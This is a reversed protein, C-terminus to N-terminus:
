VDLSFGHCVVFFERPHGRFRRLRALVRSIRRWGILGRVAALDLDQFPQFGDAHTGAHIDAVRVLLAGIFDGLVAGADVSPLQDKDGLIFVIAKDPIANLLSGFLCIDIMSAEDIMFISKEPFQNDKNYAFGNTTPSYKLLSHITKPEAEKLKDKILEDTFMSDSEIREIISEKLRDKAKGTPATLYVNWSDLNEEDVDRLKKLINKLIDYVVTTKGTGPGGSIILNNKLGRIVADTQKPDEDIKPSLYPTNETWSQRNGPFLVSFKKQIDLKADYYKKAYLWDNDIVFLGTLKKGENLKIIDNISAKLDEVTLPNQNNSEEKNEKETILGEWKKEWKEWLKDSNLSICTNGDDLFSFYLCILQLSSDSYDYDCDLMELVKIWIRSIGNNNALTEYLEKYTM